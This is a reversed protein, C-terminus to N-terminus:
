DAIRTFTYRSRTGKVSVDFVVTGDPMETREWQYNPMIYKNDKLFQLLDEAEIEEVIPIAMGSCNNFLERIMEFNAM